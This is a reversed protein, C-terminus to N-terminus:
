KEAHNEVNGGSLFFYTCPKINPYHYLGELFQNMFFKLDTWLVRKTMVNYTLYLALSRRFIHSQDISGEKEHRQLHSLSSLQTQALMNKAKQFNFLIYLLNTDERFNM